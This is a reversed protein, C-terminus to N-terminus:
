RSARSLLWEEFIYMSSESSMSEYSASELTCARGFDDLAVSEELLKNSVTMFPKNLTHTHRNVAAELFWLASTTTFSAIVDNGQM